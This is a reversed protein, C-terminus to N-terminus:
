IADIAIKIGAAVLGAAFVTYIASSTLLRDALCRLAGVTAGLALVLCSTAIAADRSM